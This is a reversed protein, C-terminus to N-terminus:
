WLRTRPFAKLKPPSTTKGVPSFSSPKPLPEVISSGCTAKTWSNGPSAKKWAWVCTSIAALPGACSLVTTRAAIPLVKVSPSNPLAQLGM